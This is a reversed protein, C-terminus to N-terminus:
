IHVKVIVDNSPIFLNNVTLFKVILVKIVFTNYTNCYVHKVMTKSNIRLIIGTFCHKLVVLCIAITM